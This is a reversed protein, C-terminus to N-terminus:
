FYHVGSGKQAGTKLLDFVYQAQSRFCIVDFTGDDNMWFAAAVQALRTRRFTGPPFHAPRLDVPTLKAMVERAHPGSIRFRARADSVDAVLSHTDGLTSRMKDLTQAVDAYDCLVLLEDPSMWCIGRTGDCNARGTGPMQMGNAGTAAAIVASASLDGRLTIMGQLPAEQVHAIGDSWTVGGLASVENSM